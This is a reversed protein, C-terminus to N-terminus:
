LVVRHNKHNLSFFFLKRFPYTNWKLFPSELGKVILGNPHFNYYSNEKTKLRNLRMQASAIKLANKKEAINNFDLGMFNIYKNTM